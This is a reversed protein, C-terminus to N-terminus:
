SLGAKKLEDIVIDDIDLGASQNGRAIQGTTDGPDLIGFRKREDEAQQLVEEAQEDSLNFVRKLWFKRSSGGAEVWSRFTLALRFGADAMKWSQGATSSPWVVKYKTGSYGKLKLAMDFMPRLLQTELVQRQLYTVFSALVIEQMTLDQQRQGKYGLMEAPVRDFFKQLFYEVDQINALGEIRPDIVQLENLLPYLSKNDPSPRYGSNIFYDHEPSLPTKNMMGSPTTRRTIANVFNRMLRRGEEISKGTLDVKWANRPYARTVRAIVMSQEIWEIRKWAVRYGDLFSFESYPSVISPWFQVHMMEWPRWGAIVSGVSSKQQYALGDGNADVGRDLNGKRDRNIYMNTCRHPFLRVLSDDDFLPEIFSDGFKLTDRLIPRMLSRVGTDDIVQEIVRRPGRSGYGDVQVKFCDNINLSDDSSSDNGDFTLATFVLANLMSHLLGTDMLDFDAYRASRDESITFSEGWDAQISTVQSADAVGATQVPPPTAKGILISWAAQARESLTQM